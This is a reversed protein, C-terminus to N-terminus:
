RKPANEKEPLKKLWSYVGNKDNASVWIIAKEGCTLCSASKNSFNLMLSGTKEKHWPCNTVTKKQFKLKLVDKWDLIILEIEGKNKPLKYEYPGIIKDEPKAGEFKMTEEIYTKANNM